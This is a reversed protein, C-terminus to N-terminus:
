RKFRYPVNKRKKETEAVKSKDPRWGTRWKVLNPMAWHLACETCCEYEDFSMVDDHDRFLLNCVPCDLPKVDDALPKICVCGPEVKIVSEDSYRKWDSM